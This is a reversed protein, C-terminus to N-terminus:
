ISISGNADKNPNIKENKNENLVILYKEITIKINNRGYKNPYLYIILQKKSIRRVSM